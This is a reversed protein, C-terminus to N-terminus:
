HGEDAHPPRPAVPLDPDNEIVTGAYRALVGMVIDVVAGRVNWRLDDEPISHLEAWVEGGIERVTRVRREADNTTTM